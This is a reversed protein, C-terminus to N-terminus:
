KAADILKFITTLQMNSTGEYLKGIKVDRISFFTNEPALPVLHLTRSHRILTEAQNVLCLQKGDAYARYAGEAVGAGDLKFEGVLDFSISPADELLGVSIIPEKQPLSTM